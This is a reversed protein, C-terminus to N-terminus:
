DSCSFPDEITHMMQHIAMDAKRAFQKCCKSCSFPKEGTHTRQHTVLHGKSTFSRGCESCSFPKEGTHTRLHYMLAGKNTLCKGCESCPYPKAKSHIVQHKVLNSRYQFCTGCELCQFPNEGSHFKLHTTLVSRNTFCKGCQPCPFLLEGTHTRQHSVLKSKQSFCKGCESCVFPKEGTHVRNHRVLDSKRMFLKGCESCSFPKEGTHIRKHVNLSGNQTFCKGCESCQYKNGSGNVTRNNHFDPLDSSPCILPSIPHDGSASHTLMENDTNYNSSLIFRRGLENKIMSGDLTADPLIDEETNRWDDWIYPKGVEELEEVDEVKIIVLDEVHHDAQPVNNKESDNRTYLPSPCIKVPHKKPSGDPSLPRQHDEMMVDKYQDKHEEIYEWEEMSFHVTVDQCRIPVEGTLLEIIKNALELIRQEHRISPPPLQLIPNLTKSWEESVHGQSSSNMCDGSTKKVVTYDEGMLLYIIELTLNLIREHMTNIGKGMMIM